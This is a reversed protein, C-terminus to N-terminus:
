KEKFYVVGVQKMVEDMIEAVLQTEKLPQITSEKKGEQLCRRVEEIEYCFGESNAFNTSLYPEPLPYEKVSGDPTELKTPCWFRKPVKLQGKTGSVIAECPLNVITGFSLQAIRGGSYTLTVAVLDDTGTDGLIGEAHIKQPKEGGFVMSAFNIAYVGIDLTAGGGLEPLTLRNADSKRRFGFAVNVYRVNGIAGDAILRRLDVMAPFFRMWVGEMLFVDKEKALQIMAQTDAANMTLPKECVVPKGREIMKQACSLHTPHITGIYVVDIEPDNALEDYSGYARAISHTAAFSQASDLSRAAVAVITHSTSPLTKIGVVFDHSIKGASCIGWRLAAM